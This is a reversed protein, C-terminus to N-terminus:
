GGLHPYSFDMFSTPAMILIKPMKNTVELWGLIFMLLLITPLVLIEIGYRIDISALIIAAMALSYRRHRSISSDGVEKLVMFLLIGAIFYNIKMPLLSPEPYHMIKNILQGAIFTPLGILISTKLFGFKHMFIFLAPFVFYFQMELSLSWDPLFTSFSYNPFLGFLFSFHLFINKSTYEIHAPDYTGGTPWKAPNLNQLNQYGGLFYYSSAIALALSLYYAPALRFFRRLWFRLWSKATTLPEFHNRAFANATMLYGSIMMFLDVAIKASPVPIGNWDGWIMCHVFIVWFAALARFFNIFSFEKIM